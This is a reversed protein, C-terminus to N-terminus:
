TRTIGGRSAVGTSMKGGIDIREVPGDTCAGMQQQMAANGMPQQYVANQFVAEQPACSTEPRPIQFQPMRFGSM